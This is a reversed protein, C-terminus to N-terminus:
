QSMKVCDAIIRCDDLARHPRDSLSLKEGLLAYNRDPVLEYVSGFPIITTEGSAELLADIWMADFHVADSYIKRGKLGKLLRESAEFVSIGDAMLTEQKIGHIAEAAPDWYTWYNAPKVLFSDFEGTEYDYWAIEIPYSEPQLGSAEVDVIIAM